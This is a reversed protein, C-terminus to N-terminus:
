RNAVLADLEVTEITDSANWEVTVHIQLAGDVPTVSWRRTYPYAPISVTSAGSADLCPKAITPAASPTKLDETVVGFSTLQRLSEFGCARLQEVKEQALGLAVRNDAQAHVFTQGFVFMLVVGIAAIGVIAAAIIVELLTFGSTTGRNLFPCWPTVRM